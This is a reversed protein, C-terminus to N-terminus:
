DTYGKIKLWYAEPKIEFKIGGVAIPPYGKLESYTTDEGSIFTKLFTGCLGIHIPKNIIKNGVVDLRAIEYTLKKHDHGYLGIDASYYNIDKAYKTLSGGETRSGGGWGHHYHILLSRGRGAKERFNIKILGSYGLFKTDYGKKKLRKVLRKTLNTGCKKLVTYEHNGMGIGILRPAIPEIIEEMEDVPQDLIDDGSTIDSSKIYRKDTTIIGDFWDGGGFFYTNEDSDSLFEKLARSDHAKAGKHFDYLPKLTFTQGYKYPIRYTVLKV